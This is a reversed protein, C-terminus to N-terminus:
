LLSLSMQMCPIVGLYSHHIIGSRGVSMILIQMHLFGSLSVAPCPLKYSSQNHLRCDFDEINYEDAIRILIRSVNKFIKNNIWKKQYFHQFSTPLQQLKKYNEPQFLLHVSFKEFIHAFNQGSFFSLDTEYFPVITYIVAFLNTPSTTKEVVCRIM